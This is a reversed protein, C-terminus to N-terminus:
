RGTGTGSQSFILWVLMPCGVYYSQFIVVPYDGNSTFIRFLFDFFLTEQKKVGMKSIEPKVAPSFVAVSSACDVGRLGPIVAFVLM